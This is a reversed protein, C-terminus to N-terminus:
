KKRLDFHKNLFKSDSLDDVFKKDNQFCCKMQMIVLFEQVGSGKSLWNWGSWIRAGQKNQENTKINDFKTQM